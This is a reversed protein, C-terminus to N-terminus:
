DLLLSRTRRSRVSPSHSSQCAYLSVTCYPWGQTFDLFWFSGMSGKASGLCCVTHVCSLAMGIVAELVIRGRHISLSEPPARWCSGFKICEYASYTITGITDLLSMSSEMELQTSAALHPLIPKTAIASFFLIGSRFTGQIPRSQIRISWKPRQIDTRDPALAIIAAIPRCM